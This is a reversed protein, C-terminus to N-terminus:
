SAFKMGPWFYLKKRLSFEPQPVQTIGPYEHVRRHVEENVRTLMEVIHEKQAYERFVSVLSQIFFSGDELHRHASYGEFSSYAIVIDSMDPDNSDAQATSASQSNDNPGDCDTRGGMTGRCAQIFFLKPKARFIDKSFLTYVESFKVKQEDAAFFFDMNGHSMICVALCDYKGYEENDSIANLENMLEVGNLKTIIRVDFNLYGCFLNVLDDVDKQSGIRETLEEATFKEINIIVILGRPNSKM